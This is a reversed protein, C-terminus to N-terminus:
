RNKSEEVADKKKSEKPVVATTTNDLGIIADSKVEAPPNDKFDM